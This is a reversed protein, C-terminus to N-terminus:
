ALLAAEAPRASASSAIKPPRSSLPSTLLREAAARLPPDDLPDQLRALAVLEPHLLPRVPDAEQDLHQRALRAGAGLRHDGVERPPAAHLPPDQAQVGARVLPARPAPRHDVHRRPDREVAAAARRA